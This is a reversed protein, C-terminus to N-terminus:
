WRRDKPDEFSRTLSGFRKITTPHPKKTPPAKPKNTKDQKIYFLSMLLTWLLIFPFLVGPAAKLHVAPCQSMGPLIAIEHLLTLPSVPHLLYKCFHLSSLQSFFPTIIQSLQPEGLCILLPAVKPRFIQPYSTSIEHCIHMFELLSLNSRLNKFFLCFLFPFICQLTFGPKIFTLKCSPLFLQLCHKRERTRWSSGGTGEM